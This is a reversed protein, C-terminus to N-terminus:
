KEFARLARNFTPLLQNSRLGAYQHHFHALAAALKGGHDSTQERELYLYDLYELLSPELAKPKKFDLSLNEEQCFKTFLGLRRAYDKETVEGVAGHKALM